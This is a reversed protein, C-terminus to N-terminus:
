FIGLLYLKDLRHLSLLFLIYQKYLIACNIKGECQTCNNLRSQQQNTPIIIRVLAAGLWQLGVDGPFSSPQKATTTTITSYLLIIYNLMAFFGFGDHFLLVITVM